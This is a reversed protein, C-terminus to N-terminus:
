RQIPERIETKRARSKKIKAGSLRAFLTAPCSVKYSLRILLHPEFGGAGSKLLRLTAGVRGTDPIGWAASTTDATAYKLEPGIASTAAM